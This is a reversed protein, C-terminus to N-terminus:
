GRGLTMPSQTAASLLSDSIDRKPTSIATSFKASASTECLGVCIPMSPSPLCPACQPQWPHRRRCSSNWAPSSPRLRCLGGVARGSVTQTSNRNCSSKPCHAHVRAQLSSRCARLPIQRPYRRARYQRSAQSSAANPFQASKIRPATQRASSPRHGPPLPLRRQPYAQWSRVKM